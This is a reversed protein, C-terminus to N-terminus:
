LSIFKFKASANVQCSWPIKKQGDDKKGPLFSNRLKFNESPQLSCLNIEFNLHLNVTTQYKAGNHMFKRMQSIHSMRQQLKFANM